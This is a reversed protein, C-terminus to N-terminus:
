PRQFAVRSEIGRVTNLKLMVVLAGASATNIRDRMSSVPSSAANADIIIELDFTMFPPFKNEAFKDHECVICFMLYM